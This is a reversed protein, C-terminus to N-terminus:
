KDQLDRLPQVVINAGRGYCACVIKENIKQKPWMRCVLSVLLWEDTKLM